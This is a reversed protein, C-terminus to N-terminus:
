CSNEIIKWEDTRNKSTPAASDAAPVSQRQQQSLQLRLRRLGGHKYKLAFATFVGVTIVDYFADSLM